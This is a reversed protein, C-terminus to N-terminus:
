KQQAAAQLKEGYEVLDEYVGSRGGKAACCNLLDLLRGAQTGSHRYYCRPITPLAREKIWSSSYPDVQYGYDRFGSLVLKTSAFTAHPSESAPLHFLPIMELQLDSLIWGGEM